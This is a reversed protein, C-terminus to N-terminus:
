KVVKLHSRDPSRPVEPEADVPAADAPVDAADAGEPSEGFVM